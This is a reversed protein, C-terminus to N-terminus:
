RSFLSSGVVDIFFQHQEFWRSGEDIHNGHGSRGRDERVPLVVVGECMVARVIVVARVPVALEQGFLRGVRDTL